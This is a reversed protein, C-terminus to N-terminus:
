LCSDSFRFGRGDGKAFTTALVLFTVVADPALHGLRLQTPRFRRRHTSYLAFALRPSACAGTKGHFARGLNPGRQFSDGVSGM